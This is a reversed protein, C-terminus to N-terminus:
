DEEAGGGGGGGQGTKGSRCGRGTHGGEEGARNVRKMRPIRRMRRGPPIPIRAERRQNWCVEKVETAGDPTVKSAKPKETM